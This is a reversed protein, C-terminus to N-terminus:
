EDNWKEFQRAFYAARALGTVFLILLVMVGIPSSAFAAVVIAVLFVAVYLQLPTVGNNIVWESQFLTPLYEGVLTPDPLKM